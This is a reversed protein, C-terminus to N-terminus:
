RYRILYSEERLSLVENHNRFVRPAFIVLLPIAYKMAPFKPTLYRAPAFLLLEVNELQSFVSSPKNVKQKFLYLPSSEGRHARRFQWRYVRVFKDFAVKKRERKIEGKGGGERGRREAKRGEREIEWIQLTRFNITSIESFLNWFVDRFIRASQLM